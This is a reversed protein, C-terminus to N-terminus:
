DVEIYSSEPCDDRSSTAVFKIRRPSSILSSQLLFELLSGRAIAKVDGSVYSWEWSNGNGSYSYLTASGLSYNLLYDAGISNISYGTSSNLDSDIFIRYEETDSINGRTKIYFAFLNFPAGQRIAGTIFIDLADPISDEYYCIKSSSNLLQWNTFSSDMTVEPVAIEPKYGFRQNISFSGHLRQNIIVNWNSKLYNFTLHYGRSKSYSEVFNKYEELEGNVNRGPPYSYYSNEILNKGAERINDFFVKTGGSTQTNRLPQLTLTLLLLLFAAAIAAIIFFQGKSNM